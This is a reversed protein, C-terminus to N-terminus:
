IAYCNKQCSMKKINNNNVKFTVCHIRMRHFIIFKQTLRPQDYTNLKLAHLLHYHKPLTHINSEVPMIVIHGVVYFHEMTMKHFRWEM